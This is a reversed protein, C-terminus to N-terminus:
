LKITMSTVKLSHNIYCMTEGQPIIQLVPSAQLRTQVHVFHTKTYLLIEVLEVFLFM